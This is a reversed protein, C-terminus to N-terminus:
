NRSLLEEWFFDEWFFRGLFNRWFIRRFFEWVNEGFFGFCKWFIEWFKKLIKFTDLERWWSQLGFVREPKNWCDILVIRSKIFFDWNQVGHSKLIFGFHFEWYASDCENKSQSEYTLMFDSSFFTSYNWLTKEILDSDRLRGFQFYRRVNGGALQKTSFLTM